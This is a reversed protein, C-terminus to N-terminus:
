KRTELKKVRADNLLIKMQQIAIKNLRLLREMQPLGRKYLHCESKRSKFSM